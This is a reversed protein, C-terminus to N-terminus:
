MIYDFFKNKITKIIICNLVNKRHKIPTMIHRTNPYNCHCGTGTAMQFGCDM